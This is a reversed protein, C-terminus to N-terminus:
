PTAVRSRDADEDGYIREFQAKMQRAAKLWIRPPIFHGAGPVIEIYADSGLEELTDRLAMFPIELFFDDRSGCFLYLRGRLQPALEKWERKLKRRIDYKKWAEAVKPDIRGTARDFVFEPQGDDGRPSFVADFSYMQGGRGLVVEMRVFDRSVIAPGFLGDRSFHRLEGDEDYLFNDQPDYVNIEQFESFDVPDPCMSWVGGFTEPHTIQVWLSAWGGSSAGTLYRADADPILRFRKEIAPILEKVLATGVPGNNASDAFVHHGTPADADLYVVVADFSVADLIGRMMLTLSPDRITGGFGPIVYVAPFRRRPQTRYDAPLAVAAAMQVDRKHFASLLDSKIRVYKVDPTDRLDPIPVTRDIRLRVTQAQGPEHRFAQERSFGNGPAKIVDHSWDNLVMVAQARYRDMPLKALNDPYGISNEADIVITEGPAWNEVDRAFFPQCRFWDVGELPSQDSRATTVVFVRGTYPAACVSEDFTIEFQPGAGALLVVLAVLAPVRVDRLPGRGTRTVLRPWQM